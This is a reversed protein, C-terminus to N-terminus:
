LLFSAFNIHLIMVYIEAGVAKKHLIYSIQYTYIIAIYQKEDYARNKM